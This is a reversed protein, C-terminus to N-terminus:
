SYDLIHMEAFVIKWNNYRLIVGTKYGAPKLLIFHM